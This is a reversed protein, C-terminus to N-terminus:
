YSKIKGTLDYKGMKTMKYMETTSEDYFPPRGSILIYLMVGASWIDCRKDYQKDYVEPAMYFPTGVSSHMAGFTQLFSASLGFDILKLNGGEEAKEGSEFKKEFM